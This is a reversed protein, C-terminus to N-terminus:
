TASSELIRCNGLDNDYSIKQITKFKRNYFKFVKHEYKTQLIFSYKVEQLMDNTVNKFTYTLLTEQEPFIVYIESENNSELLNDNSYTKSYHEVNNAPVNGSNKLKCQIILLNKETDYHPIAKILGVIPRNTSGFTLILVSM